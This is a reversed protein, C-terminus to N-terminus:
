GGSLAQMVYIQADPGVPVREPFRRENCLHGDVFVAVHRRICGQEDFIYAAAQPWPMLALDLATRLNHADVTQPICDVYRRLNETFFVRAM